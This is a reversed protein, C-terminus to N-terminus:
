KTRYTRNKEFFEIVVQPCILNAAKSSVFDTKSTGEWQMWYTLQGKVITAGLIKQALMGRKFGRLDISAMESETVNLSSNEFM